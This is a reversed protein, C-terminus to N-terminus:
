LKGIALCDNDGRKCKLPRKLNLTRRFLFFTVNPKHSIIFVSKYFVACARCSDIGLHCQKISVLCILCHLQQFIQLEVAYEFQCPFQSVQRTEAMWNTGRLTYLFANSVFSLPSFCLRVVCQASERTQPSKLACVCVCASEREETRRMVIIFMSSISTECILHWTIRKSEIRHSVCSNLQPMRM